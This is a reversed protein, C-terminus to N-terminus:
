PSAGSFRLAARAAWSACARRMTNYERAQHEAEIPHKNLERSLDTSRPGASMRCRTKVQATVPLSDGQVRRLQIAGLQLVRASSHCPSKNPPNTPLRVNPCNKESNTHVM